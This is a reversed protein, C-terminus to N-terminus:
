KKILKKVKLFRTEKEEKLLQSKKIAKNYKEKNKLTTNFM